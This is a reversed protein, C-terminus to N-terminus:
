FKSSICTKFFSDYRSEGLNIVFLNEKARTMGTYILNSYSKIEEDAYGPMIICIVTPAEWGKFSQITSIKLDHTMTTFHNKLVKEMRDTDRKNDRSSQTQRRAIFDQLEKSIFTVTTKQATQQRYRWDIYQLIEIQPALIAVDKVDFGGEKIYDACLKYVKEYESLINGFFKVYAYDTRHFINDNGGALSKLEEHRHNIGQIFEEKFATNVSNILPNAFRHSEVLRYDWAGPMASFYIEGDRENAWEYILQRPDGFLVMEGGERLFYKKLVCIWEERYDQAEDVFIADFKSLKDKVHAFFLVDDYSGLRIFLNHQRATKRFFRHYYDITFKEWPFDARIQSIRMKLYNVLTINFSLILVNGGTRVQANVARAALVQTKGSGAVGRIKDQANEKSKSLHTQEKNLKTEKGERFSHWKPSFKRKITKLIVDDFVPNPSYFRAQSFLHRSVQPDDIFERGYLTVYNWNGLKDVAEQRTAKPCILVRKVLSLNRFNQVVAETFEKVSEVLLGQYEDLLEYPNSFIQDESRIGVQTNSRCRNLDEDFVHVVMIGVKPRLIVFDPTCGNVKPSIYIMDNPMLVSLLRYYVQGKELSLLGNAIYLNVDYEGYVPTLSKEEPSYKSFDLGSGDQVFGRTKCSYLYNTDSTTAFGNSSISSFVKKNQFIEAFRDMRYANANLPGSCCVFHTCGPIAIAKALKALDIGELDLINSFIHIVYEAVFSLGVVEGDDGNKPLRANVPVIGVQGWTAFKVNEVARSLAEGSPEILTIRKLWKLLDRERLYDIVASAGIGQGCGWDVIEVSLGGAVKGQPPYPLNQLVSRCKSLHMEGYAGMYCDLAEDSSLIAAGHQLEPHWYPRCKYFDPIHPRCINIISEFTDYRKGKLRDSYNM